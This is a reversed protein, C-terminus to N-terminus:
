ENAKSWSPCSNGPTYGCSFPQKTYKSQLSCYNVGDKCKFASESQNGLFKFGAVPIVDSAVEKSLNLKTLDKTESVNPKILNEVESFYPKTLNKVESTDTNTVEITDNCKIDNIDNEKEKIDKIDNSNNTDETNNTSITNLPISSISSIVQLSDKVANKPISYLIKKTKGVPVLKFDLQKNERMRQLHYQATIPAIGAREAVMDVDAVELSSVANIIRSEAEIRRFDKYEGIGLITEATLDSVGTWIIHSDQLQFGQTPALKSLNCKIHVVARREKNNPDSGVLLVSRCSAALDISGLGRYIPKRTQSKTLHRIFVIALSYREALEALRATIARTENARYIDTKGGIFAVLPDLFVIDPRVKIIYQELVDLGDRAFDLVGTIAFIRSMDADMAELRPKITDALGDEASALLITMPPLAKAGPLARGRSADAAVQLMITTKYEGPDGEIGTIKGRAFWLGIFSVEEAKVDSLCILDTGVGNGGPDLSGTSLWTECQERTPRVGGLQATLDEIVKATLRRM